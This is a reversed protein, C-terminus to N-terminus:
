LISKRIQFRNIQFVYDTIADKVTYLTGRSPCSDTRIVMGKRWYGSSFVVTGKNMAPNTRFDVEEGESPYFTEEPGSRSEGFLEEPYSTLSNFYDTIGPNFYRQRQLNGNQEQFIMHVIIIAHECFNNYYSFRFNQHTVCSLKEIYKRTM